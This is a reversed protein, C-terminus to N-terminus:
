PCFKESVFNSSTQHTQGWMFDPLMTFFSIIWTYICALYVKKGGFLNDHYDHSLPPRECSISVNHRAVCCAILAVTNLDVFLVLYNVLEFLHCIKQRFNIHHHNLTAGLFWMMMLPIEAFSLHLIMVVSNNQLISFQEKYKSRAYPIAM